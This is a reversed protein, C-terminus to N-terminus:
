VAGAAIEVAHWVGDTFELAFAFRTENVSVLIVPSDDWAWSVRMAAAAAALAFALSEPAPDAEVSVSGDTSERVLAALTGLPELAAADRRADPGLAAREEDSRWFLAFRESEGGVRVTGRCVQFTCDGVRAFFDPTPFPGVRVLEVFAIRMREATITM